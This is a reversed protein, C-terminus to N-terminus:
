INKGVVKQLFDVVLNFDIRRDMPHKTPEYNVFLGMKGKEKLTPIYKSDKEYYSVTSVTCKVGSNKGTITDKFDSFTTKIKSVLSPKKEVEIALKGSLFSSESGTHFESLMNNADTFTIKINNKRAFTELRERNANIQSYAMDPIARQWGKKTIVFYANSRATFNIKNDM